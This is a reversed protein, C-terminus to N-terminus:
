AHSSSVYETTHEAGHSAFRLQLPCPRHTSAWMHVHTHKDPRTIDHSDTHNMKDIERYAQREKKRRRKSACVCEKNENEKDATVSITGSHM